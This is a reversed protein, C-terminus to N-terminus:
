GTKLPIVFVLEDIRVTHPVGGVEIVAQQWTVADYGRWVQVIRADQGQWQVQHRPLIQCGFELKYSPDGMDQNMNIITVDDEPENVLNKILQKIRQHTIRDVWSFKADAKRLYRESICILEGNHYIAESGVHTDTCIWETISRTTFGHDALDVYGCWDDMLHRTLEEGSYGHEPSDLRALLEKLLM